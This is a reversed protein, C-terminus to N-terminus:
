GRDHQDYEAVLYPHDPDYRTLPEPTAVRGIPRCGSGTIGEAADGLDARLRGAAEELDAVVKPHDTAVDTTEGPDAALDFLARMPTEGKRLHLKWHGVRIAELSDRHFYGFERRVPDAPPSTLARAFSTGDVDTVPDGGALEVFTPLLDLATMLDDRLEGAPIRGPWSILCPVRQGGEWTSGKAGRLPSNSAGSHARSGNDSTFVVLTDEALGLNRLESLIAGTSWDIAAVAAGYRGNASAKLLHEPTYIPAHVHMHALYLLFPEDRHERIFGVAEATYRETLSAQDPQEQVVDADDMLPLPPFDRDAGAQRGMDNSYPLGFFRDFGHDTPLFGPQDGCHWKGILMTAYGLERLRAAFTREEPALGLGMGPFLVLEGDFSGFGIRAPYCGTLMAGRSPSCVPSAMYFDTLRMGTAALHDLFPTRNVPSGYCGLDGYGLDDCNILLINPRRGASTGPPSPTPPSPDAM